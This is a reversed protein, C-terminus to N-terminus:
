VNTLLYFQFPGVTFEQDSRISVPRQTIYDNLNFINESFKVQVSSGSFNAFYVLKHQKHTKEIALVKPNNTPIVRMKVEASNHLARNRERLIFLQRYFDDDMNKSWKIKDSRYISMNRIMPVEQGASMMYNGKSLLSLVILPKYANGFYMPLSGNKSDLFYNSLSIIRNELDKEQQSTLLKGMEEASYHGKGLNFLDSIYTSDQVSGKFTNTLQGYDGTFIFTCGTKKQVLTYLSEPVTADHWIRLGDLDNSQIYEIMRDSMYNFVAPQDYDLVLVDRFPLDYPNYLKEASGEEFTHEKLPHDRGVIAPFFDMFISMGEKHCTTALQQLEEKKGLNPDISDHDKIAFPSGLDGLKMLDSTPQVPSIILTKIHLNRLRVIQSELDTIGKWFPLYVEYYPGSVSRINSAQEPESCGLLSVLIISLM